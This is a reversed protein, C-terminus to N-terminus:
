SVLVASQGGSRGGTANYLQKFMQVFFVIILVIFGIGEIMEVAGHLWGNPLVIKLVTAVLWFCGGAVSCVLTHEILIRITQVLHYDYWAM